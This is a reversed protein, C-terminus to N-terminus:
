FSFMNKYKSNEENVASQFYPHRDSLHNIALDIILKMDRKKLEEQLTKYLKFDGFAKDISRFDLADYKHYSSSEFFPTLYLTNAGLDQIYDLKEIIGQFDGGFFQLSAPGHKEVPLENWQKAIANNGYLEEEMKQNITKGNGIFFRDPMIQYIIASNKWDAKKM